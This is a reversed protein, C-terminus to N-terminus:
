SSKSDCLFSVVLIDTFFLPKARSYPGMEFMPVIEHALNLPPM